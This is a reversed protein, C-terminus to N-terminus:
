VSEILPSTAFIVMELILFFFIMRKYKYNMQIHLVRTAQDRFLNGVMPWLILCACSKLLGGGGEGGNVKKILLLQSVLFVHRQEVNHILSDINSSLLSVIFM